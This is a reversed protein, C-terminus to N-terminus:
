GYAYNTGGALSNVISPRAPLSGALQEVWLGLYNHAAPVTDTGDTFRGLTYDSAPGPVQANVTNKAASLTADNGNDCLSDGFVVISTYAQGWAVLGPFVFVLAVLFSLFRRTISM